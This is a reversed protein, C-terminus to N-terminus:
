APLQQLEEADFYDAQDVVGAEDLTRKIDVLTRRKEEAKERERKVHGHLLLPRQQVKERMVRVEQRWRAESERLARRGEEAQRKIREATREQASWHGALAARLEDKLRVEREARAEAEEATEVRAPRNTQPSSPSPSPLSDATAAPLFKEAARRRRLERRDREDREKERRQDDAIRRQEDRQQQKSRHRRIVRETHRFRFARPRTGPHEEKRRQLEQAFEAHLRSFDPILSHGAEEAAREAAEWRRCRDERERRDARQQQAVRQQEERAKEQVHRQMRPPMKAISSLFEARQRRVEARRAEEQRLVTDLLPVQCAYPVDRAVFPRSSTSPATQPRAVTGATTMGFAVHRESKRPSDGEYASDTGSDQAGSRPRGRSPQERDESEEKEEDDGRQEKRRRQLETSASFEFPRISQYLREREARRREKSRQERAKRLGEYREGLINPVEKARFHEASDVETTRPVIPRTWREYADRASLQFPGATSPRQPPRRTALYPHRPPSSPPYAPSHLPAEEKTEERDSVRDDHHLRSSDRRSSRDTHHRQLRDDVSRPTTASSQSSQSASTPSPQRAAASSAHATLDSRASLPPSRSLRSSSASGRKSASPRDESPEGRSPRHHYRSQEQGRVEVEAEEEATDDDSRPYRQPPEHEGQRDDAANSHDFDDDTAGATIEGSMQFAYFKREIEELYEAHQSKLAAIAELAEQAGGAGASLRHQLAAQATRQKAKMAEIAHLLEPDVEHVFSETAHPADMRPQPVAIRPSPVASASKASPSM